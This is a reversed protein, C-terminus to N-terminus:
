QAKGANGEIRTQDTVWNVEWTKGGDNSFSQEFHPSNSTMNTWVFRVFILKGNLTDQAYFEGRGDKFQGIQPPFIPGGKRNAWYLSWQLTQPDYLRLTLGELQGASGNVLLQDLEAGDWVKRCVGTGEYDVWTNSGTLPNLRRKLHYKWRGLLPDFDHSGDREAAAQQAGTKSPDSNKRPLGHLPLLVAILCFIVLWIPYRKLANMMAEKSENAREQKPQILL